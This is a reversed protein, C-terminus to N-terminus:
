IKGSKYRRSDDLCGILREESDIRRLAEQVELLDRAVIYRGGAAEVSAQNRKQDILKGAADAKVEIELWTGRYCVRRDLEARTAKRLKVKSGFPDGDVHVPPRVHILFNDIHSQLQEEQGDLYKDQAQEASMWGKPRDKAPMKSVFSDPFPGKM